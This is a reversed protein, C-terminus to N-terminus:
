NFSKYEISGSRNFPFLKFLCFFALPLNSLIVLFFTEKITGLNRSLKTLREQLFLPNKVLCITNPLSQPLILDLLCQIRDTIKQKEAVSRSAVRRPSLEFWEYVLFTWDRSSPRQRKIRPCYIQKSLRFRHICTLEIQRMERACFGFYWNNFLSLSGHGITYFSM